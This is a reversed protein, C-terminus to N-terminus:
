ESDQQGRQKLADMRRNWFEIAIARDDTEYGSGGCNDCYVRMMGRATKQLEVADQNGCFPCPLLEPNDSM